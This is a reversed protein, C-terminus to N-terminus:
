GTAGILAAGGAGIAAGGLLIEGGLIFVVCAGIGVGAIAIDRGIHHTSEAHTSVSNSQPKNDIEIYKGTLKYGIQGECEWGNLVFRQVNSSPTLEAEIENPGMRLSTTGVDTVFSSGVSVKQNTFDFSAKFTQLINQMKIKANYSLNYFSAAGFTIDSISGLRRLKIDGTFSLQYEIFLEGLPSRVILKNQVKAFDELDLKVWPMNKIIQKKANLYKELFIDPKHLAITDANKPTYMRAMNPNKIYDDPTCVCFQGFLNNKTKFDLYLRNVEEWEYGTHTKLCMKIDSM